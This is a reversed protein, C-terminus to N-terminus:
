LHPIYRYWVNALIKWGKHPEQPNPFPLGGHYGDLSLGGDPREVVKVQGSYQETAAMYNKPLPNVVTPGVPMSVDAPMKWYYKGSFLDVLGDSMFQRYQQWNQTTIVTGVPIGDASTTIPDTAKANASSTPDLPKAGVDSASTSTTPSPQQASGSSPLTASALNISIIFVFQYICKM